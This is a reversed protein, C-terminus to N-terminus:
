AAKRRIFTTPAADRRYQSVTGIARHAPCYSSGQDAVHGCCTAAATPEGAIWRCQGDRVDVLGVRLSEPLAVGAPRRPAPRPAPTSPRAVAAPAAVAPKRRESTKPAGAKRVAPPAPARVYGALGARHMRGIVASRSRANGFRLNLIAATGSGGKGALWSAIALAHEEDSWPARHLAGDPSARTSPPPLDLLPAAKM